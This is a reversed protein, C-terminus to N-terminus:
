RIELHADSTNIAVENAYFIDDTVLIRRFHGPAIKRYVIYM